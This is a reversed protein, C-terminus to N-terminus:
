TENKMSQVHQMLLDTKRKQNYNVRCSAIPISHALARNIEEKQAVVWWLPQEVVNIREFSVALTADWAEAHKLLDEPVIRRRCHPSGCLCDFGAEINLSGYDDTLQDGPQIDRIAIEIDYGPAMCVPECSHNMYRAIDWCLIYNGYHDLYGYREVIRRYPPSMGQVKEVSFVQDFDDRAWTITGKPIYATAFVGHGIPGNIFRLETAPHIM